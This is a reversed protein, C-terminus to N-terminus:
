NVGVIRFRGGPTTGTAGAAGAQGAPTTAAAPEDDDVVGYDLIVDDPNIGRRIARKRYQDILRDQRRKAGRYIDRARALFDARQEPTLRTGRLVRNYLNRIQDPVAAANQATAFEGERVVSGPDLMKMYAFILSLDGAPTDNVAASRVTEYSQARSIFDRSDRAFDDALQNVAREQAPTYVTATANRQLAQLTLARIAALTPDTQDGLNAADRAAALREHETLPRGLEKEKAAVVIALKREFDSAPEKAPRPLTQGPDLVVHNAIAALESPKLPKGRFTVTFKSDVDPDLPDHGLKQMRDFWADYTAKAEKVLKRQAGVSPLTRLGSVDVGLPELLRAVSDLYAQGAAEDELSVARHAATDLVGLLKQRREFEERQRKERAAQERALREEEELRRREMGEFLGGGLAAAAQGGAFPVALAAALAPLARILAQQWSFGGGADAAPEAVGGLDIGARALDILPDSPALAAPAATFGGPVPSGALPASPMPLALPAPTPASGGLPSAPLTGLSSTAFDPPYM